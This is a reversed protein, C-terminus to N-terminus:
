TNESQNPAFEAKKMTPYFKGKAFLKAKDEPGVYVEGHKNEARYFSGAIHEVKGKPKTSMNADTNNAEVIMVTDTSNDEM